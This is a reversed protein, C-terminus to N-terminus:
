RKLMEKLALKIYQDTSMTESALQPYVKKIERDVYGLAKLAEMAEELEQNGSRQKPVSHESHPQTLDLTLTPMLEELKGKLDLIIQRATKKGVGPFKILFAEEENEIAEVVLQPQEAAVIALAGKPGIGSVSLLKEFLRREERHFFGYLRIADERVHQYTYVTVTENISEEYRYPNGCYVLYGVDRVDIVIAEREINIIKGKLCEIM